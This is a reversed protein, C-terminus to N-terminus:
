QMYAKGSTPNVQRILKQGHWSHRSDKECRNRQLCVNEQLFEKKQYDAKYVDEILSLFSYM